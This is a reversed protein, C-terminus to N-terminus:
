YKTFEDDDSDYKTESINFNNSENFDIKFKTYSEPPIRGIINSFIAKASEIKKHPDASFTTYISPLDKM